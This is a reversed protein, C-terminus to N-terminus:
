WGDVDRGRSRPVMVSTAPKSRSRRPPGHDVAGPSGTSAGVDPHEAVPDQRHAVEAHDVAVLDPELEVDVAPDDGRAEDVRM